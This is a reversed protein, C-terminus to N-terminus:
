DGCIETRQWNGNEDKYLCETCEWIDIFTEYAENSYDDYHGECIEGNVGEIFGTDYGVIENSWRCSIDSLPFMECLKKFIPIPPTWSTYFAIRDNSQIEVDFGTSNSCGWRENRLDNDADQPLPIIMDIDFVYRNDEIYVFNAKVIDKMEVVNKVYTSM